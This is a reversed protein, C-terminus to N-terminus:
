ACKQEACIPVKSDGWHYWIREASESATVRSLIPVRFQSYRSIPPGKCDNGILAIDM